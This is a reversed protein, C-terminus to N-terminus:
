ENINYRQFTHVHISVLLCIRDQVGHRLGEHAIVVLIAALGRVSADDHQMGLGM